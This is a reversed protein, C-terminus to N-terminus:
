LRFHNGEKCLAELTFYAKDIMKADGTYIVDIIPFVTKIDNELGTSHMISLMDITESSWSFVKIDKEINRPRPNPFSMITEYLGEDKNKGVTKPRFTEIKRRIRTQEAKTVRVGTLGGVLNLIDVSTVCFEEKDEDWICSVYTGNGAEEDPRLVSFSTKIEDGEARRTFKVLRRRAAYEKVSWNKTVQQLDGEVTIKTKKLLEKLQEKSNKEERRLNRRTRSSSTVVQPTPSPIQSPTSSQPPTPTPTPIQSPPPPPASYPVPVFTRIFNNISSGNAVLLVDIRNNMYERSIVLTEGEVDMFLYDSTITYYM